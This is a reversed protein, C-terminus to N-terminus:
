RSWRTRVAYIRDRAPIGLKKLWRSITMKSVGCRYAIYDCSESRGLYMEKMWEPNKYLKEGEEKELDVM